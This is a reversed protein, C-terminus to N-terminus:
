NVCHFYIIRKLFKELQMSGNEQFQMSANSTKRNGMSAESESEIDCLCYDGALPSLWQDNKNINALSIDWFTCLRCIIM